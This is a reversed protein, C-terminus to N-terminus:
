RGGNFVQFERLRPPALASLIVLRVRGSLVPEFLDIKKHGITTGGAVTRWEEGVQAQILYRAVRQGEALWEMTVARDFTMPSSFRLDVVVPMVREPAFWVTDPDGDAAEVARPDPRASLPEAYLRRVEDGFEKLRAVDSDPMLGRNDPALGLVLQAGRGVTQHYTEMLRALPKLSKEDNPHWFWHRERLPTDAEAPRWRLYGHRDIVNWNEENAFGSENGVWRIDGWPLFGVDAFVLTNPQYTRLTEAYKEFDYVHGESGAGDLWFETLEGYRTALEQVQARYYADYRANDKYSPEHRDWPSLYVGFRLGHKRCAAAVERVLDGKGGRWPSSKVSYDTHRTPWLCFGNHHKAVLILYRAGAAKSATVWQEADLQAPNFVKPDATGDGWERDLFTNTGFHILVGVELDQWALQQPTPRLDACNQALAPLVALLLAFHRM